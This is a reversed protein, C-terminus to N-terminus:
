FQPRPVLSAHYRCYPVLKQLIEGQTQGKVVLNMVLQNHVLTEKGGAHLSVRSLSGVCFIRLQDKFCAM